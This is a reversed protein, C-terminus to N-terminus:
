DCWGSATADGMKVESERTLRIRYTKGHYIVTEGCPVGDMKAYLEETTQVQIEYWPAFPRHVSIQFWFRTKPNYEPWDIDDRTGVINNEELLGHWRGESYVASDNDSDVVTIRLPRSSWPLKEYTWAEFFIDIGGNYERLTRSCEPRPVLSDVGPGVIYGCASVGDGVRKGIRMLFTDGAASVVWALWKGQHYKRFSVELAWGEPVAPIAPGKVYPRQLATLQGAFKGKREWFSWQREYLITLLEVAIAADGSFRSALEEVDDQTMYITASSDVDNASSEGSIDDARACLSIGLLFCALPALHLMTSRNM